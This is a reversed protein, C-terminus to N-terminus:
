GPESLRAGESWVPELRVSAVERAHDLLWRYAEVDSGGGQRRDRELDDIAQALLAVRDQIAELDDRAVIMEDDGLGHAEALKRALYAQQRCSQRCYQRPRGPGARVPLPRQCWRCLRDSIGEGRNAM